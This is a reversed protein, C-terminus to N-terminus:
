RTVRSGRRSPRILDADALASLVRRLPEALVAADPPLGGNELRMASFLRSLSDDCARVLM